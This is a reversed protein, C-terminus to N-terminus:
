RTVGTLTDTHLDPRTQEATAPRRGRRKPARMALADPRFLSLQVDSATTAATPADDDGFLGLQQQM